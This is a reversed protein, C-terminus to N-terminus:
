GGGADGDVSRSRDAIVEIPEATILLYRAVAGSAGGIAILLITMPDLM